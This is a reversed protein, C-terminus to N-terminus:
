CTSARLVPELATAAADMASAGGGVVVVRRGELRAADWRDSSHAWRDRPLAHAWVPVWAGGLGDRGTALVVHRTQVAYRKGSAAQDVLDLQVVGDARPLVATVHQENRVDLTLVRRYWRLYDAWQLGLHTLTALLALGAMGGGVVAVDLPADGTAQVAPVWRRAPLGLWALDQRLRAELM